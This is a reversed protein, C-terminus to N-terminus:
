HHIKKIRSDKKSRRNSFFLFSGLGVLLYALMGQFIFFCLIKLPAFQPSVFRVLWSSAEGLFASLFTTVIILIKTQNKGPAFIMLHTLMLIVLAMIPLHFHTVELMSQPTRPLTFNDQSGLYYTAVSTPTFGMKSFVMLFNTIWLGFIFLLMFGLTLKMLPNNQFNGKEMYKM